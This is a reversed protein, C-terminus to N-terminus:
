KNWAVSDILKDFDSQTFLRGSIWIIRDSKGPVAFFVNDYPTNGTSDLYKARYGTLGKGNTFQTVSGVGKWSYQKWWNEVYMKPDGNLKEVRFFINNSSNTGTIFATVADYPDNPFWGLSFSSPYSFSYPYTKGTYTNWPISQPTPTPGLYTIGGPLVTQGPGHKAIEFSILVFAFLFGAVAVVPFVFKKDIKGEM